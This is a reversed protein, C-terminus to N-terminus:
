SEPHKHKQLPVAVCIGAAGTSRSNCTAVDFDVAVTDEVDIKPSYNHYSSLWSENM